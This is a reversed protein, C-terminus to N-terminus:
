ARKVKFLLEDFVLLPGTPAICNLPQGAFLSYIIGSASAAVLTEPVGILGDTKQGLFIIGKFNLM